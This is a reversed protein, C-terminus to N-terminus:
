ADYEPRHTHSASEPEPSPTTQEVFSDIMWNPVTAHSTPFRARPSKILQDHQTAAAETIWVEHQGSQRQPKKGKTTSNNGYNRHHKPQYTPFQIPKTPIHRTREWEERTIVPDTFVCQPQPDASHSLTALSLSQPSPLQPHARHFDCVLTPSHKLHSAPEWTNSETPYGKWKIFYQLGRRWIRSNLIKEVEYQEEGEVTVPPPPATTQDPITSAQYPRVDSINVVPHIRIQHPLKLKVANPYVELIPYPGLRKDGLKKSPRDTTYQSVDLWVKQGPVLKPADRLNYDAYRKMSDASRKLAAEAEQRIKQM